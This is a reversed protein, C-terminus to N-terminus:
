SSVEVPSKWLLRQQTLVYIAKLFIFVLTKSVLSGYSVEMPSELVLSGSSEKVAHSCKRASYYTCVCDYLTRPWFQKTYLLRRTTM